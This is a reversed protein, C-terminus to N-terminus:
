KKDNKFYAKIDEEYRMGLEKAKSEIIYKPINKPVYSLMMITAVIVGIGFGLIFDKKFM